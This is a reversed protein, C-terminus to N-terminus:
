KQRRKEKVKRCIIFTAGGVLTTAILGIAICIIIVYTDNTSKKDTYFTDQMIFQEYNKNQYVKVSQICFNNSGDSANTFGTLPMGYPGVGKKIEVTLRLFEPVNSVGGFDTAFVYKNDVFFMYYDPTWLMSYTHYEGNYLNYGVNTTKDTMRYYPAEYADYHLANGVTTPKTHFSSEYIDIETGDKGQNGIKGVNLSQLWFASWMGTGLPVKVTAEYYGFAQSFLDTSHKALNGDADIYSTRDYTDVGGTFIGNKPCVGLPCVHNESKFSSIVLAGNQIAVTQDCWYADHRKGHPSTRWKTDSLNTIKSFDDDLTVYWGDATLLSPMATGFNNSQCATLFLFAMCCCIATALTLIFKKM